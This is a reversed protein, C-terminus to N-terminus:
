RSRCGECHIGRCPHGGAVSRVLWVVFLVAVVAAAQALFGALWALLWVVAWGAGALVVLVAAAALLRRRLRRRRAGPSVRVLTIVASVRGDPLLRPATMSVLCGSGRVRAVVAAVEQATGVVRRRLLDPALPRRDVVTV